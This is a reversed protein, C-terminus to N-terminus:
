ESSKKFIEFLRKRKKPQELLLIKQQNLLNLQQEQNLLNTQTKIQELLDSILNDKSTLQRSQEEIRNKLETIYEEDTRKEQEVCVNFVESIAKSSIMTKGNDKKVFKNLEDDSNKLRKYVAQVSIGVANAFEKITLYANKM